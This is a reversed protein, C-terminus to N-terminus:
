RRGSTASSHVSRARAPRCPASRSAITSPRTQPLSKSNPKSSRRPRSPVGGGQWETPDPLLERIVEPAHFQVRAGETVEAEEGRAWHRLAQARAEHGAVDDTFSFSPLQVNAGERPWAAVQVKGGAGTLEIQLYPLEPWQPAPTQESAATVAYTFDVDRQEAYKSLTQAREVLDAGSELRGGSKITRDLADFISEQEPGFFRMKLDPNEDLRRVVESQNWPVLEVGARRADEHEVLRRQFSRELQQSLDRAFVFTVKSPDWRKIAAILSKECEEWNIDDGYRKAQWVEAKRDATAPRLTDAGGDPHQLRRVEGPYERQALELVMQEFREPPMVKMQQRLLADREAAGGEM